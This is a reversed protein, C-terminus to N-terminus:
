NPGDRNRGPGGPANPMTPNQGPMNDIGCGNCRFDGEEDGGIFNETPSPPTEPFVKPETGFRDADTAVLEDLLGALERYFAVETEEEVTERFRPIWRGLHDELFDAQANELVGIGTEDGTQRLYATQLALHSCFELELCLHDSRDRAGDVTSLNFARYFGSLDALTDTSTLITGPSYEIEYQSLEGGNEFGFLDAYKGELTEIGAEDSPSHDAVFEAHDALADSELARASEVLQDAFEGSELAATLEDGPRDFALSALKYLRARHVHTEPNM